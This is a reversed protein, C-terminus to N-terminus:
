ELQLQESKCSSFM